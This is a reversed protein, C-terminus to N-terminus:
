VITFPADFKSLRTTAHPMRRSFLDVITILEPPFIDHLVTRLLPRLTVYYDNMFREAAHVMGNIQTRCSKTATDSEVVARCSMQVPESFRSWPVVVDFEMGPLRKLLKYVVNERDHMIAIKLPTAYHIDASAARNLYDDTCLDIVESIKASDFISNPNWILNNLAVCGYALDRDMKTGPKIRKLIIDLQGVSGWIACKAIMCNLTLFPTASSSLIINLLQSLVPTDIYDRRLWLDFLTRPEVWELPCDRWGPSLANSGLDVHKVSMDFGDSGIQRYFDLVPVLQRYDDSACMFHAQFKATNLAKDLESVKKVSPLLLVPEKQKREIALRSRSRPRKGLRSRSRSMSRSPSLRRAKFRSRSRSRSRSRTHNKSGSGITQRNEFSQSRSRSRSMLRARSRSRSRSSRRQNRVRTTDNKTMTNNRSRSRSRHRNRSQKRDNNTRQSFLMQLDRIDM